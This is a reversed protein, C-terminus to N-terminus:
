NNEWLSLEWWNVFARLFFIRLAMVYFAFLRAQFHMAVSFDFTHWSDLGVGQWTWCAQIFGLQILSRFFRAFPKCKRKVNALQYRAVSNTAPAESSKPSLIKGNRFATAWFVLCKFQLVRAYSFRNFSDRELLVLVFGGGRNPEIKKLRFQFPFELLKRVFKNTANIAPSKLKTALFIRISNWVFDSDRCWIESVLWIKVHLFRSKLRSSRSDVENIPFFSSRGAMTDLMYFKNM